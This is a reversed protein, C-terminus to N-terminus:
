SEVGVIPGLCAWDITTGAAGTVNVVIDAGDVDLSAGWLLAGVDKIPTILNLASGIM